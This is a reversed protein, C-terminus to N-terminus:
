NPQHQNMTRSIEASKSLQTQNIKASTSENRSIEASKSFGSRFFGSFGQNQCSIKISKPQNRSIEASKPLQNQNIKASKSVNRSIEASKPQNQFARGFFVRFDRFTRFVIHFCKYLYPPKENTPSKGPQCPVGGKLM